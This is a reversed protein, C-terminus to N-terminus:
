KRRVGPAEVARLVLKERLGKVDAGLKRARALHMLLKERKVQGGREILALGAEVVAVHSAATVDVGVLALEWTRRAQELRRRKTRCGSCRVATADLFFGLTEYWHRQEEATFVFDVACDRCRKELPGYVVAPGGLGFVQRSPNGWLFGEPLKGATSFTGDKQQEVRVGKLERWGDDAGGRYRAVRANIAEGSLFAGRQPHFFVRLPLEGM